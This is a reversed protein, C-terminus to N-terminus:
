ERTFNRTGWYHLNMLEHNLSIVTCCLRDGCPELVTALSMCPPRVRVFKVPLWRSVNM